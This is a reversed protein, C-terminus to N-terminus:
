SNRLRERRVLALRTLSASGHANFRLTIADRLTPIDDYTPINSVFRRRKPLFIESPASKLRAASARRANRIFNIVRLARVNANQRYNNHLAAATSM